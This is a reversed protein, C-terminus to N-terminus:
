PSIPLARDGGGGVRVLPPALGGKSGVVGGASGGTSTDKVEEYFLM